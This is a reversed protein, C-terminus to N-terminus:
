VRVAWEAQEKTKTPISARLELDIYLTTWRIRIQKLYSNDRLEFEKLNGVHVNLKIQFPIKM